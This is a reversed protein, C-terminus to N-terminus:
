RRARGEGHGYFIYHFLPELGAQRVDPNDRYYAVSDFHPGPSRLELSGHNVFHTLPDSGSAAVDPNNRLYWAPDFLESARIIKRRRKMRMKERLMDILSIPASSLINNPDEPISIFVDEPKLSFTQFVHCAKLDLKQITQDLQTQLLMRAKRELALETRLNALTEAESILKNRLYKANFPRESRPVRRGNVCGRILQRLRLGLRRYDHGDVWRRAAERRHEFTASGSRIHGLAEAIGSALDEPSVGPLRFVAEGLDDFFSLPTVAVPSGVALGYRVSGSASETTNSTPNVVLDAESLLKFCAADELFDTYLEVDDTLDLRHITDKIKLLEIRSADNPYEANVMRLRIAHGQQKLLRVAEVLPVLGKHPFCFGFSAILAVKRYEIPRPFQAVVNVLGHPLVMVNDVLGLAKLREMDPLTHVLIRDCKKMGGLFDLLRFNSTDGFIDVTSHLELVVVIDNSVCWEIFDRLEFHNYFGYNFQIVVSEVSLEHLHSAIKDFGNYEKSVDWIRICNDPDPGTPEQRAAFVVLEERPISATLHEAYTAIGCRTNWTSVVAIRGSSQKMNSRECIRSLDILRQASNRWSFDKSLRARGAAARAEREARPAQFASYLAEDLSGVVPKVGVAAVSGEASGQRSYYFDVLWASDKDCYDVHGGWGVVIAPIGSLFGQAVDIGFRGLTSLNVYVDCQSYLAKTDEDSLTEDVLIIAPWDNSHARKYDVLKKLDTSLTTNTYIILVVDDGTNFVYRYSDILIHINDSNKETCVTLFRFGTGPAKYARNPEISEWDDFGIGSAYAPIALGSDLLSKVALRSVCAVGDLGRNAQEIWDTQFGKSDFEQAALIVPEGGKQAPIDSPQVILRADARPAYQEDVVNYGLQLLAYGLKDQVLQCRDRGSAHSSIRWSLFPSLPDPRGSSHLESFIAEESQALRRASEALLQRQGRLRDREDRLDDFLARIRAVDDLSQSLRRELEHRQNQASLVDNRLVSLESETRALRFQDWLSPGYRFHSVLSQHKSSVYFRNLGDFYTFSYGKSVVLNEWDQHIEKQDIPDIAEILIIWPRRKSRRWSKLVDREFGEVDIKLWHIDGEPAEDLVQDLSVSRLVHEKVMEGRQRYLDAIDKAATSWGRIGIEYFTQKGRKSSVVAEIVKEDPRDLRLLEAYGPEPEVHIGRWGQEYFGKSVSDLTPHCAGIDIYQGTGISKLARWLIIDEYNQAYSVFAM